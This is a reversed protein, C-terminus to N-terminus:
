HPIYIWKTHVRGTKPDIWRVKTDGWHDDLEHFSTAPYGDLHTIFEGPLRQFVARMPSDRDLEVASAVRVVGHGRIHQAFIAFEGKLSPVYRREPSYAVALSQALYSTALVVLVFTSRKTSIHFM